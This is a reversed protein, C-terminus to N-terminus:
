MIQQQLVAVWQLLDRSGTSRPSAGAGDYAGGLTVAEPLKIVYVSGIHLGHLVLVSM